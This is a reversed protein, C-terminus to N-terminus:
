REAWRAHTVVPAYRKWRWRAGSSDSLTCRTCVLEIIVAAHRIEEGLEEGWNLLNPPAWTMLLTEASSPPPAVGM